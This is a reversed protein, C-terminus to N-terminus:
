AMESSQGPVFYGQHLLPSPASSRTKLPSQNQVVVQPENSCNSAQFYCYFFYPLFIYSLFYLYETFNVLERKLGVLSQEAIDSNSHTPVVGENGVLCIQPEMEATAKNSYELKM